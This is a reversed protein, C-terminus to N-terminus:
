LFGFGKLRKKLDELGQYLITNMGPVAKDLKFQDDDIMVSEDPRFGEQSIVHEFVGGDVKMRKMQDSRYIADAYRPVDLIDNLIRATWEDIDTVLVVCHNKHVREVLDLHDQRFGIFHSDHANKFQLPSIYVGFDAITRQYFCEPTIMGRAFENWQPMKLFDAKSPEVGLRVFADRSLRLDYDLLVGGIDFMALM